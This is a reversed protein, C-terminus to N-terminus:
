HESRNSRFVIDLSSVRVRAGIHLSQLETRSGNYCHCLEGLFFMGSVDMKPGRTRKQDHEWVEGFNWRGIM